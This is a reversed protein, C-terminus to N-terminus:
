WLGKRRLAVLRRNERKDAERAARGQRFGDLWNETPNRQLRKGGRGAAFAAQAEDLEDSNAILGVVLETLIAEPNEVRGLFVSTSTPSQWVLEGPGYYNGVAPSGDMDTLAFRKVAWLGTVSEFAQELQGNTISIQSM